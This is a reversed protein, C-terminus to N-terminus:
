KMNYRTRDVPGGCVGRRRSPARVGAVARHARGRGPVDGHRESERAEARAGRPFWRRARHSFRARGACGVTAQEVKAFGISRQRGRAGRASTEGSRGQRGGAAAGERSPAPSRRAGRKTPSSRARARSAPAGGGRSWRRRPPSTSGIPPAFGRATCGRSTPEPGRPGPWDLARARATRYAPAAPAAADSRRSRGRSGSRRRLVEVLVERQRLLDHVPAHLQLEGVGLGAVVLLLHPASPLRSVVLPVAALLQSPVARAQGISRALEPREIPQLQPLQLTPVAPVVELARAVAARRRPPPRAGSRVRRVRSEKRPRPTVGLADLRREAFGLLRAHVLRDRQPFGVLGWGSCVSVDETFSFSSPFSARGGDQSPPAVEPRRRRRARRRRSADGDRQTVQVRGRTVVRAVRVGLRTEIGVGRRTERARRPRLVITRLYSRVSIGRRQTTSARRPARARRADRPERRRSVSRREAFARGRREDARSARRGRPPARRMAVRRLGGRRDRRSRRRLRAREGQRDGLVVRNEGDGAVVHGAPRARWARAVRDGEPLVPRRVALSRARPLLSHVTAPVGRSTRPSARKRRASRRREARRTQVGRAARVLAHARARRRRAGPGLM